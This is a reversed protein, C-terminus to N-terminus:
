GVQGHCSHRPDGSWFTERMKFSNMLMLRNPEFTQTVEGNPKLKGMDITALTQYFHEVASGTDQLWERLEKFGFLRLDEISM